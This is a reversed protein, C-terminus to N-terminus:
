GASVHRRTTDAVLDSEAYQWDYNIILRCVVTTTLVASGAILGLEAVIQRFTARRDELICNEAKSIDRSVAVSSM